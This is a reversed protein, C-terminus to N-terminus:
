NIVKERADDEIGALIGSITEPRESLDHGLLIRYSKTQSILKKLIELQRGAIKKDVMIGGSNKILMILAEAGWIPFLSTKKYDTVEPFILLKPLSSYIFRDPYISTIDLFRKQGNMSSKGYENLEPYHDALKPDFSVGKQFAISKIGNSTEKLLIVDDSLYNWGQRILSLSTTSKGSGSSGALLIGVHDKVLGNAHLAYLGHRHLLWLLSLMLFEQRSKATKEWFSTDTRVIATNSSLDLQSVADKRMLYYFNEDKFIDLFPSSVFKRVSKPVKFSSYNNEFMVTIHSFGPASLGNGRYFFDDMAVSVKEALEFGNCEVKVNVESFSYSLVPDM